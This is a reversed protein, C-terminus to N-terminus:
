REKSLNDEVIKEVESVSEAIYFCNFLEESIFETKINKKMWNIIDDYFGEYNVIIIKKNGLSARYEEIACTLEALTGIGGPLIVIYDSMFYMKQFRVLTDKVRYCKAKPINKFDREYKPVTYAYIKRNHKVFAKYCAGMMSENAAGFVLDFGKSAFVNSVESALDLFVDLSTSYASAIFVKM